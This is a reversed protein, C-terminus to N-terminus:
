MPVIGSEFEQGGVVVGSHCVVPNHKKETKKEVILDISIIWQKINGGKKITFQNRKLLTTISRLHHEIAEM